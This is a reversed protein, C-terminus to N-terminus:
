CYGNFWATVLLYRVMLSVVVVVCVGATGAVGSVVVVVVTGVGAGGVGAGAGVGVGVVTGCPFYRARNGSTIGRVPTVLPALLVCYCGYEAQVESHSLRM